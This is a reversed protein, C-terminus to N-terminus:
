CGKFECRLGPINLKNSLPNLNNEDLKVKM